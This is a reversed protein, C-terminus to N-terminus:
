VTRKVTELVTTALMKVVKLVSPVQIRVFCHVYASASHKRHPM